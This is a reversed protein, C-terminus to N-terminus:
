FILELPINCTAAARQMAGIVANNEEASANLALGKGLGDYGIDNVIATGFCTSQAQALRSSGTRSSLTEGIYRAFDPVDEIAAAGTSATPVEPEASTDSGTGTETDTAPEAADPTGAEGAAEAATEAAETAATQEALDAELEAIRENLEDNAITLVALDAAADDAGPEAETSSDDGAKAAALEETLQLNEAQAADLDSRATFLEDAATRAETADVEAAALAADRDAEADQKASNASTWLLGLVVAAALLIAAAVALVRQRKAALLAETAHDPTIPPPPLPADVPPSIGWDENVDLRPTGTPPTDVDFAGKDLGGRDFITDNSGDNGAADPM